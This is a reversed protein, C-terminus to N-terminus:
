RGGDLDDDSTALRMGIIGHYYPTTGTAITAIASAKDVPTFPYSAAEYVRGEEMLKKLGDSSYLPSFYDLYDSRLQDVVLNVVLRPASEFAQLETGSLVAIILALYRNM